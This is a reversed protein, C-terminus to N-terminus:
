TDAGENNLGLHPRYGKTTGIEIPSKSQEAYAALASMTIIATATTLTKM